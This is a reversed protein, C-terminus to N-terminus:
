QSRDAGVLVVVDADGALAQMEPDIPEVQSIDLERGVQRAAPRAGEAFLAASEASAQTSNAINGPRFGAQEVIDATQQALGPISTGNLVAVTVTSPDIPARERKAPEERAASQPEADGRTLLTVGAVGGTFLVVVCAGILVLYRPALRRYWPPRSTGVASHFPLPPPPLPRGAPPTGNGAAGPPGGSPVPAQEHPPAGHTTSAAGAEKPAEAQEATPAAGVPAHAPAEEDKTEERREPTAVSAAAGFAAAPAAGAAPQESMVPQAGSEPEAESAERLRRLDRAQSFYLASLVALGVFAALGAYSGIQQIIEM